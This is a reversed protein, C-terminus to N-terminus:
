KAPRFSLSIKAALVVEVWLRLKEPQFDRRRAPLGFIKSRIFDGVLPLFERRAPAYLLRIRNQNTRFHADDGNAISSLLEYLTNISVAYRCKRGIYKSITEWEDNRISGSNVNSIVQTDFVIKPRLM